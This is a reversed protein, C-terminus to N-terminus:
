STTVRLRALRPTARAWYVTYGLPGKAESHGANSKGRLPLSSSIVHTETVAYSEPTLEAKVCKVAGAMLRMHHVTCRPTPQHPGWPMDCRCAYPM